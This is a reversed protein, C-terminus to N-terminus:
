GITDRQSVRVGCKICEKVVWLETSALEMMKWEHECEGRAYALAQKLGEAIKDFARKSMKIMKIM